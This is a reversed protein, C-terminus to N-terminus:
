TGKSFLAMITSRIRWAFTDCSKNLQQPHTYDQGSGLHLRMRNRKSQLSLKPVAVQYLRTAYPFPRAAGTKKKITITKQPSKESRKKRKEASKSRGRGRKRGRDKKGPGELKADLRLKKRGRMKFM